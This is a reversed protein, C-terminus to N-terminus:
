NSNVISILILPSTITKLIALNDQNKSPQTSEALIRAQRCASIAMETSPVSVEQLQATLREKENEKERICICIPKKIKKLRQVRIYFLVNFFLLFGSKQM